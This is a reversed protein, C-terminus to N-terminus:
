GGAAVCNVMAMAIGQLLAEYSSAQLPEITIAKIGTAATVQEALANHQGPEVLLCSGGQLQQHVRYLHKASPGQEVGPSVVVPAPLGYHATFHRYADHYVGYVALDLAQMKAQLQIDLQRLREDTEAWTVSPLKAAVAKLLVRANAPNLWLHMDRGAAGHHSHEYDHSAPLVPWDIGELNAVTVVRDPQEQALVAQLFVELGPGVWVVLDADSLARRDSVKLAYSHPNAGPPVLVRIDADPLLEAVILALPQISTVIKLPQAVATTAWMSCVVALWFRIAGFGM